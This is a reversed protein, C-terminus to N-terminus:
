LRKEFAIPCEGRGPNVYALRRVRVAIQEHDRTEIGPHIRGVKEPSVEAVQDD